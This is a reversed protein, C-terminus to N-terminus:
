RDNDRRPVFALGHPSGLGGVLPTVVGTSLNLAGVTGTGKTACYAANARFPGALSYVVNNKTDAILLQRAGSPAFRTDDLSLPRGAVDKPFLQSTKQETRGPNVVLTLSPLPATGLPAGGQDDLLLGGGPTLALSDTDVLAGAGLLSTLRVPDGPEPLRTSTEYLVVDNPTAPNTASLYATDGKFVIDDYGSYDPHLNGVYKYADVDGTRPNVVDLVSNGDQNQLVWLLGTQPDVRLGDNGGVLKYTRELKGGLTYEAITSTAKGGAGASDVGNSYGVFVDAGSVTLSDVSTAHIAAGAAFTSLSYGPAIVTQAHAAAGLGALLMGALVSAAARRLNTKADLTAETVYM